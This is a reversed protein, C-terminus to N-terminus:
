ARAHTAPIMGVTMKQGTKAQPKFVVFRRPAIKKPPNLDPYGSQFVSAQLPRLISELPLPYVRIKHIVVGTKVM